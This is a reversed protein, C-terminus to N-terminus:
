PQSAGGSAAEAPAAVLKREVFGDLANITRFNDLRLDGSGLRLGFEGEVFLVIQMAFLSTVFGSAFIDVDDPLDRNRIYRALFSRIKAKREDM